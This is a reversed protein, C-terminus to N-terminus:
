NVPSTEEVAITLVTYPGRDDPYCNRLAERLLEATACGALTHRGRLTKLAEARTEVREVGLVRVRFRGNISLRDGPAIRAYRTGARIELTKRGARIAEAFPGKVFLMM